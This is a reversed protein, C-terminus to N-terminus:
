HVIGRCQKVRVLKPLPMMDAMGDKHVHSTAQPAVDPPPVCSPHRGAVDDAVVMKLVTVGNPLGCISTFVRLLERCGSPCNRLSTNSGEKGFGWKCLLYLMGCTSVSTDPLCRSYFASRTDPVSTSGAIHNM